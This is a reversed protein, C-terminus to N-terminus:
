TAATAHIEVCCRKDEPRLVAHLTSANLGILLGTVFAHNIGCVLDTAQTSQPAFPCNQLRVCGATAKAPEFGYEALVSMAATLAREGGLRGPRLHGRVEAGLQEGHLGAVRGAVVRADEDPRSTRVAEMLISALLGTERQPISVRIDVDSPEYVKPRRGVARTERSRDRVKLLGAKVLKDLHFAALKASIGVESAADQRTVPRGCDRIFRYIARRLDDDLAAISRIAPESFGGERGTRTRM